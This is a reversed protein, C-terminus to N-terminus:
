VGRVERMSSWQNHAKRASLIALLASPEMITNVVRASSLRRSDWPKKNWINSEVFLFIIFFSTIRLVFSYEAYFSLAQAEESSNQKTGCAIFFIKQEFSLFSIHSNWLEPIIPLRRPLCFHRWASSLVSSHRIVFSTIDLKLSINSNVASRLFKDHMETEGLWIATNLHWTLDLYKNEKLFLWLAFRFSPLKGPKSCLKSGPSSGLFLLICFWYVKPLMRLNFIRLVKM